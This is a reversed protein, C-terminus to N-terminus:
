PTPRGAIARVIEILIAALESVLAVEASTASAWLIRLHSTDPV